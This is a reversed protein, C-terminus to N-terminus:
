VVDVLVVDIWDTLNRGRGCRRGWDGVAGRMMFNAAEREGVLTDSSELHEGAAMVVLRDVAGGKFVARM